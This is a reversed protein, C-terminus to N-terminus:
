FEEYRGIFYMGNLEAQFINKEPISLAISLEGMETGDELIANVIFGRGEKTKIEKFSSIEVKTDIEIDRSADKALFIMYMSDRYITIKIITGEQLDSLDEEYGVQNSELYINQGFSLFSVVAFVTTVLLTKM